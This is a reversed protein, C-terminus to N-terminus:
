ILGTYNMQKNVANEGLNPSFQFTGDLHVTNFYIYDRRM